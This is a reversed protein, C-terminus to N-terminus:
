YLYICLLHKICISICHEGDLYSKPFLLFYLCTMYESGNKSEQAVFVGGYNCKFNNQQFLQTGQKNRVLYYISFYQNIRVTISWPVRNANKWCCKTGHRAIRIYSFNEVAENKILQKNRVTYPHPILYFFLASIKNSKWFLIAQFLVSKKWHLRPRTYTLIKRIDLVQTSIRTLCQGIHICSLKSIFPRGWHAISIIIFFSSISFTM